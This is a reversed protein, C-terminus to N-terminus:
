YGKFGANDVYIEELTASKKLVALLRESCEHSLKLHSCRFQLFFSNLELAAIIPILDRSFLFATLLHIIIPIPAFHSVCSEQTM